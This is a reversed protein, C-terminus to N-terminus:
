ILCFNCLSLSKLEKLNALGKLSGIKNKNGSIYKMSTLTSFPILDTVQNEDFRFSVLKSLNEIGEL